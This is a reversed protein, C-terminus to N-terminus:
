AARPWACLAFYVAKKQKAKLLLRDLIEARLNNVHKLEHVNLM